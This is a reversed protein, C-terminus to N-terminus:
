SQEVDPKTLSIGRKEAVLEIRRIQEKWQSIHYNVEEELKFLAKNRLVTLQNTTLDHYRTTKLNLMARLEDYSLGSPKITLQVKPNIGLKEKLVEPKKRLEGNADTINLENLEQPTLCVGLNLIFSFTIHKNNFIGLQGLCGDIVEEISIREFERPLGGTITAISIEGLKETPFQDKAKNMLARIDQLYLYRPYPKGDAVIAGTELKRLFLEVNCKRRQEDIIGLLTYRGPNDKDNNYLMSFCHNYFKQLDEQSADMLAISEQSRDEKRPFKWIFSKVDNNKTEIAAILKEKMTQM